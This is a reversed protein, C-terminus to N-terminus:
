KLKSQTWLSISLKLLCLSPLRHITLNNKCSISFTVPLTIEVFKIFTDSIAKQLTVCHYEPPAHNKTTNKNKRHALSIYNFLTNIGCFKNLSCEATVVIRGSMKEQEMSSNMYVFMCLFMCMCLCVYVHMLVCVCAYACMCMCLCVYVHM